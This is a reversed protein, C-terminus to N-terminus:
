RRVSRRRRVWDAILTVVPTLTWVVIAILRSTFRRPFRVLRSTRM